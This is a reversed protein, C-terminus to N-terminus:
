AGQFIGRCVAQLATQAIRLLSAKSKAASKIGLVSPHRKFCWILGWLLIPLTVALLILDFLFILQLLHTSTLICTPTANGLPWDIDEQPTCNFRNEFNSLKDFTTIVISAAILLLQVILKFKYWFFIVSKNYALFTTKMKRIISQNRYSYFGTVEVQDLGKVKGFFSAFHSQFQSKWFFHPFLILLAQALIVAPFFQNVPISRECVSLVFNEDTIIDSYPSLDSAVGGENSVLEFLLDLSALGLLLGSVFNVVRDWSLDRLEMPKSQDAGNVIGKELEDIDLHGLSFLKRM